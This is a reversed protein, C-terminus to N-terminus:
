TLKGFRLGVTRPAVPGALEHVCGTAHTRCRVDRFQQSGYLPDVFIGNVDYHEKRPPTSAMRMKRIMCNIECYKFFRLKGHIM